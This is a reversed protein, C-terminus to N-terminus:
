GKALAQAILSDSRAFLEKTLAEDDALRNSRAEHEQDYYRGSVGALEPSAACMVTTRAGEEVSLMFLKIIVRAPWPVERWVNSAVVGPHLSYTSVEGALQRGLEKAHIVNMLKSDGYRAIRDRPSRTERTFWSLDLEKVRRHARSSVNVLRAAKSEKLRPLLLQTFLYPGLHNTALTVEYGDASLGPTGAIGANNVLVDLPRGSALFEEASHKVSSLKGLDLALFHLQASPFRKRLDELIAQTKEASRSAVTITAGRAALAEVAALGIGSNGGTVLFSRERLDDAM